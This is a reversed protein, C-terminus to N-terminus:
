KQSEKKLVEIEARLKIIEADREALKKMLGTNMEAWVVAQQMREKHDDSMMKFLRESYEIQKEIFDIM